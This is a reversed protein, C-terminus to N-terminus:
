LYKALDEEGMRAFFEEAKAAQDNTAVALTASCTGGGTAQYITGLTYGQMNPNVAITAQLLAENM